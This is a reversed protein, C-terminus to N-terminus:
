PLPCLIIQGAARGLRGDDLGRNMGRLLVALAREHQGMADLTQALLLFINTNVCPGHTAPALIAVAKAVDKKKLCMEARWTVWGLYLGEEFHHRYWAIASRSFNELVFQCAHGLDTWELHKVISRPVPKKRTVRPESRTEPTLLSEWDWSDLEKKFAERDALMTKHNEELTEQDALLTELYKSPPTNPSATPAAVPEPRTVLPPMEPMLIAPVTREPSPMAVFVMKVPEPQPQENTPLAVDKLGSYPQAIVPEPPALPKTVPKAPFHLSDPQPM